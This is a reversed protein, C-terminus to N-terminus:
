HINQRGFGPLNQKIQIIINIGWKNSAICPKIIILIISKMAM